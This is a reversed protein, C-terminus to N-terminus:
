ITENTPIIINKFLKLTFYYNIIRPHWVCNNAHMPAKYTLKNTNLLNILRLSQERHLPDCTYNPSKCFFIHLILMLVLHVHLIYLHLTLQKHVPARIHITDSKHLPWETYHMCKFGKLQIIFVKVAFFRAWMLSTTLRHECMMWLLTTCTCSGVKKIMHHWWVKQRKHV